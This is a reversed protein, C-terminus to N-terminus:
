GCVKAGIAFRPSRKEIIMFRRGYHTRGFFQAHDRQDKIGAYTVKLPGGEDKTIEGAPTSGAVAEASLAVLHAACLLTGLTRLDHILIAEDLALQVAADATTAFEPFQARFGALDAAM